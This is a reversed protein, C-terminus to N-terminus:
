PQGEAFAVTPELQDFLRRYRAYGDTYTERTAADQSPEVLWPALRVFAAVAQDLRAVLGAAQSALMAAGVATAEPSEVLRVPRGTVDAKLQLWFDSRAGGGVVRLEGNALGLESLRDVIDRLAYALGEYAARALHGTTHSLALGSFAGRANANWRPTMSGSLAPLFLVGDSGPAAERALEPLREQGVGLIGALWRTTGGSVFGPNEILWVDPVAHAHTEVLRTDDVVPDRAAAAVPEATGSIDCVPGPGILGAALCAAHEDGTGVAVRCQTTLELEAAVDPRLCGAPEGAERITALRREDLNAAELLPGSWARRRVDYLLSSSANAHDVVREGTCWAALFSGPLLFADAERAAPDHARLWAIKPVVHYADPNLGTIGWIADTGLRREFAYAEATARRDMWIIAPALPQNAANVAVAGDVQSAFALGAVEDAAVGSARRAQRVAEGVAALWQRPDQDAWGPHRHTIDLPAAATGIVVGADDAVVAKVSQSGLDCGIVYPM